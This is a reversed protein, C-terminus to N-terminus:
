PCLIITVNRIRDWGQCSIWMGITIVKLFTEEPSFLFRWHELILPCHNQTPQPFNFDLTLVHTLSWVAQGVTSWRSQGGLLVHSLYLPLLPSHLYPDRCPSCHEFSHLAIQFHYSRFLQPIMDDAVDTQSDLVKSLQGPEMGLAAWSNQALM